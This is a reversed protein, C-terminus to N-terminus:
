HRVTPQKRFRLFGLTEPDARNRWQKYRQQQKIERETEEIAQFGLKAVEGM